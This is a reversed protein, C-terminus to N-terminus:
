KGKTRQRYLAQDRDRWKSILGSGHRKHELYVDKVWIGKLGARKVLECYWSDSGYHIFAEDLLGLRNIVSRKILVCWFPVQIVAQLGRMGLKGDKMPATSSGGSPVAIAYNSNQYLARQLTALWGHQFWTVDDNLLCIDADPAAQRIGRNCTATFGSGEPDHSVILTAECSGRTALAMQGAAQARKMSLTPIIVAISNM